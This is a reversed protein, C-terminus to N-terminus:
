RIPILFGNHGGVLTSSAFFTKAIMRMTHNPLIYLFNNDYENFASYGQTLTKKRYFDQRYAQVQLSLEVWFTSVQLLNGAYINKLAYIYGDPVTFRSNKANNVVYNSELATSKTCFYIKSGTNPNGEADFTSGSHNYLFVPKSWDTSTMNEVELVRALPTTLYKKETGSLNIEQTVFNFKGNHDTMGLIKCPGSFNSDAIHISDIIPYEPTPLYRDTSLGVEAIECGEGDTLVNGNRKAYTNFVKANNFDLKYGHEYNVIEQLFSFYEENNSNFPNM